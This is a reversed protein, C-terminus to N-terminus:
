PSRFPQRAQYQDIENQLANVLAANNQSAAVPLAQQATAIADPFRGAEAYAAALTRLILPNESNSLRVARQALEVARAGNRLSGNSSTALIWALNNCAGAYDPKLEIARRYHAIASEEQGKRVLCAGLNNQTEAMDPNTALAAQFQDIAEDVRGALLLAMGFNNRAAAFDPQLKLAAQYQSTAADLQGTQYLAFGLCNLADPYDPDISLARRCHVIADNLQGKRLLENGLNNEALANNTTCLLTHNWLTESDRWYGTQTRTVAMLTAVIGVAVAGLIWRRQPWSKSLDLVFWTALLALGIQPLYTYRDARAQSGAQVLGIVPVLMGLYWLWGVPFWPRQRRWFFAAASIAILILVALVISTLSPPTIPYPYFPALNVPWVLQKLYIVYSIVANSIRSSFPIAETSRIANHQVRLTTIASAASLLFLPIKELLLPRWAPGSGPASGGVRRLPWYDLLLLVFPMTVLMPKSMLGLAFLLLALLYRPISKPHRVYGLWAGLTLMFFFGSLVDKREAVWAVSEVRLPHLAFVAAVFASPWLAATMKRLNLFLLIATAAHLLLSTHHHKGADLGYLECDLMHSLITLPHWNSAHCSTFSAAIGKATLGGSVLPNEYVYTGDDFNIFRYHVAQGFALWVAAALFVCVAFVTWRNHEPEITESEM